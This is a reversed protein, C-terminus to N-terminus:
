CRTGGQSYCGSTWCRQRRRCNRFKRMFSDLARAFPVDCQDMWNDGARGACRICYPLDFSENLQKM